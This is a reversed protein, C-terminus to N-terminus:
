QIIKADQLIFNMHNIDTNNLKLKGKVKILEDPKPLKSLKEFQIEAITEPGAGGCFFCSSFPSASLMFVSDIELPIYYGTLSIESKQMAILDDNFVPVEFYAGVEDFYTSQFVVEDFIDWGKPGPPEEMNNVFLISLILVLKM